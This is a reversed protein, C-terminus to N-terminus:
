ANSRSSIECDILEVRRESVWARHHNIQAPLRALEDNMHAIDAEASRILHRLEWARLARRLRALAGPRTPIVALSCLAGEACPTAWHVLALGGLIALVLLVVFWVAAEARDSTRANRANIADSVVRGDTINM